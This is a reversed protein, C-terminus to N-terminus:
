VRWHGMTFGHVQRTLAYRAADACHDIARTDVDDPKRPDRPLTPVTDWWFRCARSVYLGPRDSEGAAPLMTRMREWGTSRSGKKAPSFRVGAAEFEDGLSGAEHGHAAFISDDAAHGSARPNVGWLVCLDKIADALKPVTWGLGAGPNAPDATHLEDVLIISGPAFYRGDPGEAGPSEACMYVVAPASSGWDMALYLNWQDFGNFFRVPDGRFAPDLGLWSAKRGTRETFWGPTWAAPDAAVRDEDLVSSFFCGRLVAWSGALWAELLEPDAACAARLAREYAAQDICVNDALTSPAVVFSRGTDDCVHPHWPTAPFVYRRALFGHGVGGPNAALIMRTPVGKPARVNSLMRDLLTPVPWQQAEDIGLIQFSRGQYRAYDQEGALFGLELTGGGPFTWVHDSGNYTAGGGFAMGFLDRTLSVFDGLAPFSQRLLLMRAHPGHQVANRLFLLALTVSKGGGRGGALIIDLQEPVMLVRKQFPSMTLGQNETAVEATM